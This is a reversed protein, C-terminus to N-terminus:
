FGETIFRGVVVDELQLQTYSSLVLEIPENSIETSVGSGLAFIGFSQNTKKGIFLWTNDYELLGAILGNQIRGGPVRVFPNPNAVTSIGTDRFPEISDTGTIYLTDKFNFCGNNKDPLSEADFFNLAGITGQLAPIASNPPAAMLLCM